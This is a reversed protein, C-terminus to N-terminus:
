ILECIENGRINVEISNYTIEQWNNTLIMIMNFFDIRFSLQSIITIFISQGLIYIVLTPVFYIMLYSKTQVSFQHRINSYM